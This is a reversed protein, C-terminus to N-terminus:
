YNLSLMDGNQNLVMPLSIKEPSEANLNVGTLHHIIFYEVSNQENFSM